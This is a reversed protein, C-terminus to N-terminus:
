IRELKGGLNSQCRKGKDVRVLDEFVRALEEDDLDQESV